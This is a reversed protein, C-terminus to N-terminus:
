KPRPAEGLAATNVHSCQLVQRVTFGHHRAQKEWARAERENGQQQYADFSLVCNLTTNSVVRWNTDRCFVRWFTTEVHFIVVFRCLFSPQM